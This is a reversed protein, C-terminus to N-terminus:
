HQQDGSLSSMAPGGSVSLYFCVVHVSPQKQIEQPTIPHSCQLEELGSGMEKAPEEAAEGYVLSWEKPSYVLRWRASEQNYKPSIKM